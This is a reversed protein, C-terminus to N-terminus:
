RGEQHSEVYRKHVVQVGRQLEEKFLHRDGTHLREAPNTQVQLVGGGEERGGVLELLVDVLERDDASRFYCGCVTRWQSEGGGRWVYEEWKYM